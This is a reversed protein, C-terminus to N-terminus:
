PTEEDADEGDSDASSLSADAPVGAEATREGPDPVSLPGDGGIAADLGRRITEDPWVPVRGVRAEAPDASKSCCVPAFDGEEVVAVVGGARSEYRSRAARLDVGMAVSGLLIVVVERPM